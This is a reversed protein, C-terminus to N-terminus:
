LSEAPLLTILGKVPACSDNGLLKRCVVQRSPGLEEALTNVTPYVNAKWEGAMTTGNHVSHM